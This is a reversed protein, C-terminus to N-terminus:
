RIHEAEGSTRCQADVAVRPGRGIKREILAVAQGFAHEFTGGTVIRMGPFAARKKTAEPLLLAHSAVVIFSSRKNEFMRRRPDVAARSAM